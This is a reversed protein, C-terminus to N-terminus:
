LASARRRPWFVIALVGMALLGLELIGAGIRGAEFARVLEGVVLGWVVAYCWFKLNRGM